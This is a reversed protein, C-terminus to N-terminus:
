YPKGISKLLQYKDCLNLDYCLVFPENSIQDKTTHLPCLMLIQIRLSSNLEWRPTLKKRKMKGLLLISWVDWYLFFIFRTTSTFRLSVQLLLVLVLHIIVKSSHEGICPAITYMCDWLPTCWSHTSISFALITPSLWFHFAISLCCWLPFLCLNYCVDLIM